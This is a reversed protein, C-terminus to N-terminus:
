VNDLARKKHSFTENIRFGTKTRLRARQMKLPIYEPCVRSVRQDFRPAM